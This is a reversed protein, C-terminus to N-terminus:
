KMRRIFNRPARVPKTIKWSTSNLIEKNKDRSKQLNTKLKENKKKLSENKKKLSDNKRNLSQNKKNLSQNKKKLSENKKDLKNNKRELKKNERNLARNDKKLNKESDLLENIYSLLEQKLEFAKEFSYPYLNFSNDSFSLIRSEDVFYNIMDALISSDRFKIVNNMVVNKENENYIAHLEIVSEEGDEVPIELNFYHKYHWDIGLFRKVSSNEVSFEDSLEEFVEKEGNPLTKVAEFELANYDCSSTFTGLIRLLNNEIRLSDIYIGHNHLNNIIFDGTKLYVEGEEDITDIHFEKQNKLYMLFYRVYNKKIIRSDNIVDEDIYSLINYLTEWFENIEEKTFDDPFDSIGYYWQVNYAIVYQIFKPVCGLKEKYFDILCVDLNKLTHTFFKKDTKYNDIISTSNLRKRYYYTSSSIVGYKKKSLLVKNVMLSDYGSILETDFELGKLSESKIFSSAIGLQPNHPNEILDIVRTSKFKYNLVHDGTRREFFVVPLSVLDIEDYHEEFFDYVELLANSSLVDDSDLFSVYKGEIYKLALNFASAQGGNSKSYFKINEPYKEKYELAIDKSNDPSGDDVIILEVNEEFGISQDILSDIAEALYEEVNYIPMVVSFKFDYDM